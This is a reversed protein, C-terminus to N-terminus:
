ADQIIISVDAPPLMANLSIEDRHRCVVFGLQHLEPHWSLCQYTLSSSDHLNRLRCSEHADM